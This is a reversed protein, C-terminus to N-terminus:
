VSRVLFYPQNCLDAAFGPYLTASAGARLEFFYQLPYPSGTYGAPIVARHASGQREMTAAVWPEAHNVHRYRLQVANGSDAGSLVIELPKGPEFRAAPSHRCM